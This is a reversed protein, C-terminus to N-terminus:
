HLPGRRLPFHQVLFKLFEEDVSVKFIEAPIHTKGLLKFAMIRRAGCMLFYGKSPDEEYCPTVTIPKKLGITRISSVLDELTDNKRERPPGLFYIRDIPVMQIETPSDDETM